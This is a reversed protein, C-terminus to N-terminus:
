HAKLRIMDVGILASLDYLTGILSGRATETKIHTDTYRSSAGAYEGMDSRGNHWDIEATQFVILAKQEEGIYANVIKQNTLLTQYLHSIERRLGLKIGDQKAIASRYSAQGQRITSRYGLVNVLSIGVQFGLRYGNSVSIGESNTISAGSGGSALLSQNSKSYGGSVGIGSLLGLKSLRNTEVQIDIQANMERMLPSNQLALQYLEDISLIQDALDKTM